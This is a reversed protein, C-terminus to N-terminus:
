KKGADTAPNMSAFVKFNKHKPLQVDQNKDQDVVTIYDNSLLSEVYELVEAPALNIEDFLIYYGNKVAQLM